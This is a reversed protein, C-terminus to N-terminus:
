DFGKVEEIEGNPKLWFIRKNTTIILVGGRGSRLKHREFLGQYNIAGFEFTRDSVSVEPNSGRLFDVLKADRPSGARNWHDWAGRL